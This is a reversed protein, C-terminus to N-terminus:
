QDSLPYDSHSEGIGLVENRLLHIRRLWGKLFISLSPKRQCLAKYFEERKRLFRNLLSHPCADKIFKLTIPGVRGDPEIGLVEQLLQIARRPGTHVATDFLAIAIEKTFRHAHSALYYDEFYLNQIECPRIATVSRIPRGWKKNWADYSKQTVGFATANGEANGPDRPDYSIGGESKLTFHLADLFVQLADQQDRSTPSLCRPLSMHM